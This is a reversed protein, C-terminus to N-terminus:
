ISLRYNIKLSMSAKDFTCTNIISRVANNKQEKAAVPNELTELADAISRRVLESALAPDMRDQLKKIRATLDAKEKDVEVRYRGYDALTDIGAAYADRARALKRDLAELALELRRLEEAGDDTVISPTCPLPKSGALDERLKELLAEHLKEVTVHQSTTCRGRVYNNCKFYHPKVFVLTAGCCSCRVIGGLWDKLEYSPRAKYGWQDKIERMRQQAKQWTDDNVLPAHSGAAVITDPNHYDRRTRGTPTWRVKGVYVPNCLIYEVTRNEFPSGRHTRVGISNLWRAIPYLGEGGIFRAFIERVLAAEDPEPVLERRGNEDAPTLSYGFPAAAQWRGRQANLTMSRKVEGSLRISYYEDMWEIIREILDGFPGDVVPESVSIVDIGSRRLMAKYLVSEEQNRAFRSFRWLLLVDFPAPKQKSLAIMENFGPRKKASRGSIGEDSFVYGEPIVCGNKEAWARIEALQSEPSLETQDETSVRIYVAAIKLESM